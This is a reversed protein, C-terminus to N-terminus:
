CRCFDFHNSFKRRKGSLVADENGTYLHIRAQRRHDSLGVDRHYHAFITLLGAKGDNVPGELSRRRTRAM